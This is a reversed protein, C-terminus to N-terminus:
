ALMGKVVHGHVDTLRFQRGQYRHSGRTTSARSTCSRPRSTVARSVPDAQRELAYDDTSGYVHGRKVGGGALVWSFAKGFRDRGKPNAPDGQGVLLV